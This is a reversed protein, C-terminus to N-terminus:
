TADTQLPLNEPTGWVFGYFGAVPTLSGGTINAFQISITNVATVRVNGILIGTTQAAGSQCNIFDGLAVGNITFVQEATTNAAVAAPTLLTAFLKSELINGRTLTTSAM